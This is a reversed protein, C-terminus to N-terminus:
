LPPSPDEIMLEPLIEIAMRVFEPGEKNTSKGAEKIRKIADGLWSAPLRHFDAALQRLFYARFCAGTDVDDPAFGHIAIALCTDYAAALEDPSKEQSATIWLTILANVASVPRGQRYDHFTTVMAGLDGLFPELAHAVTDDKTDCLFHSQTRIRDYHYGVWSFIGGGQRYENGPGFNYTWYPDSPTTHPGTTERVRLRLVRRDGDWGRHLELLHILNAWGEEPLQSRWLLTTRRWDEVPDTRGPFL